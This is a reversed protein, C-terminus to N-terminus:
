KFVTLIGTIYHPGDIPFDINANKRMISNLVQDYRLYQFMSLTFIAFFSSMAELNLTVAYVKNMPNIFGITESCVTLQQLMNNLEKSAIAEREQRTLRTTNNFM